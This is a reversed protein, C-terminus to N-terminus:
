SPRDSARAAISSAPRESVTLVFAARGGTPPRLPAWGGAEMTYLVVDYTGPEFPAVFYMTGQWRGPAVPALETVHRIEDNANMQLEGYFVRYGITISRTVTEPAASVVFPVAHFTAPPSVEPAQIAVLSLGAPPPPSLQRGDVRYVERVAGRRPDQQTNVLALGRERKIKEHSHRPLRAPDILLHTVSMDRLLGVDVTNWFAIARFGQPERYEVGMALLRQKSVRVGHGTVFARSLASVISHAIVDRRTKRKHPVTPPQSSVNTLITDGKTTISRLAIAARADLPDCFTRSLGQCAWEEGHWYYTQPHDAVDLFDSGLRQLGANSVLVVGAAVGLAPWLTRYGRGRLWALGLGLAIGSLMTTGVGSFFLFRFSEGNFAGFDVAAPVVLATVAVLALFIGWWCGIVVMLVALAPLLVVSYGAEAVLKGSLLGYESGDFSTIKFHRKPFGMRVEQNTLAV